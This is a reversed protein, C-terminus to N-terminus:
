RAAPAGCAPPPAREARARRRGRARGGGDAERDFAEFREMSAALDEPSADAWLSEDGYLLLMFKMGSRRDDDGRARRAASVRGVPDPRRLSVHPAYASLPPAAAAARERLARLPLPQRAGPRAREGLREQWFRVTAEVTDEHPGSRVHREDLAGGRRAPRAAVSTGAAHFATAVGKAAKRM